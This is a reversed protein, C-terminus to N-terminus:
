GELTNCIYHAGQTASMLTKEKLPQYQSPHALSITLLDQFVHDQLHKLRPRAVARWIHSKCVKYKSLWM